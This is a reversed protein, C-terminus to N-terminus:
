FSFEGVNQWSEEALLKEALLFGNSKVRLLPSSYDFIHDYSIPEFSTFTNLGHVKQWHPQRHAALFSLAQLIGVPHDLSSTITLPWQTKSLKSLTAESFRVPKVVLTQFPLNAQALLDETWFFDNALSVYSNLSRWHSEHNAWPFPDELYDITKKLDEPLSAFFRLCEQVPLKGNGDLRVQLNHHKALELAKTIKNGDFQTVKFKVVQFKSQTAELLSLPVLDEMHQVLFNNQCEFRTPHEFLLKKAQGWGRLAFELAVKVLPSFQGAKLEILLKAVDPDGLQPHPQVTSYGTDGNESNQLRLLLGIQEGRSAKLRYTAQALKYKTM